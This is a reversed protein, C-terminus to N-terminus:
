FGKRSYFGCFSWKESGKQSGKELVRGLVKESGKKSRQTAMRNPTCGLGGRFKPPSFAVGRIQPAHPTLTPTKLAHGDRLPHAGERQRSPLVALTAIYPASDIIDLECVALVNGTRREELTLLM